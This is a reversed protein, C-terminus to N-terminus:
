LEDAFVQVAHVAGQLVQLVETVLQVDHVSSVVQYSEDLFVQVGHVAGQLVQSVDTVLQLDHM